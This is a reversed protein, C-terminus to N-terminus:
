VLRFMSGSERVVEASDNRESREWMREAAELEWCAEERFPETASIPVVLASTSGALRDMGGGVMM